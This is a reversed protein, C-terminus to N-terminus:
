LPHFFCLKYWVQTMLWPRSSSSSSSLFFWMRNCHTIILTKKEKKKKSNDCLLSLVFSWHFASFTYLTNTQPFFFHWVWWIKLGFSSWFNDYKSLSNKSTALFFFSLFNRSQHSVEPWIKAWEEQRHHHYGTWGSWLIPFFSFFVGTTTSTTTIIINICLPVLNAWLVWISYGLM